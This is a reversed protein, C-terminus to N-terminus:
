DNRLVKLRNDGLMSTDQLRGTLNPAKIGESFIATGELIRAEDWLGAQIFTALTQAGGEVMLSLIQEKYLLSCVQEALNKSYDIVAYDIGNLYKSTDSIETIILTPVSGDMVHYSSDIRLEKDLLVRRPSKGKWHRVTLHPNDEIVTNAGVMIASEECRWRHVLQKSVSNSIWYPQPIKSRMKKDPAMFGDATQAWKLLIYPRKKEHFKLFRRHHERCQNENIGVLVRCGAERLRLIGKGAVKDHPDELGIVVEPIAHKLILNVCPPTKGFHSCPELSVYLTAKSLVSKDMVSEIANVEAHPGGYASTYGEGIVRDDHVIVCGVMPNPAASGLARTGLQICRSIYKEHIKM